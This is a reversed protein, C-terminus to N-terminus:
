RPFSKVTAPKEYWRPGISVSAVPPDEECPPLEGPQFKTGRQVTVHYLGNEDRRVEMSMPDEGARLHQALHLYCDGNANVRLATFGTHGTEGPALDRVCRPKPELLDSPLKAPSM